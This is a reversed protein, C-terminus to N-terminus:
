STMQLPNSVSEPPTLFSQKQRAVPPPIVGAAVGDQYSKKYQQYAPTDTGGLGKVYAAREDSTMKDVIFARPDAQTNWAGMHRDFEAGSKGSQNFLLTGSQELRRQALVALAVERAAANSIHVSPTAAGAAAAGVDSRAGGPAQLQMQTLYKNAEEFAKRAAPDTLSTPLMRQLFAPTIDQINARLSNLTESARGTDAGSLATIAGEIPQIDRQYTLTKARADGAHQVAAAVEDPQGQPPQQRVPPQQPAPPQQAAPPQAPAPPQQFRGNVLRQGPLPPPANPPLATPPPTAAPRPGGPAPMTQPPGGPPVGPVATVPVTTPGWYKPTRQPVGNADMPIIGQDDFPVTATTTAGPTPGHPTVITPANARPPPIPTNYTGQPTVINERTGFRQQMQEAFSASTDQHEQLWRQRGAADPPMTALQRQAEPLTLIGGAVGNHLAGLMAADSFDGSQLLAGSTSNVWRAKDLNQKLQDSSINQTNLLAAGAAMAAPGRAALQRRMENPDFEGTQPNIAAQYAQGAALTAQKSALDYESSAASIGAQTAALPNVQAPNAISQLVSSTRNATQLANLTDSM